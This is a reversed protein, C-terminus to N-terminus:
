NQTIQGNVLMSMLLDRGIINLTEITNKDKLKKRAASAPVLLHNPIPLNSIRDLRMIQMSSILGIWM